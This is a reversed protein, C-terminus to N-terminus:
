ILGLALEDELLQHQDEPTLSSSSFTETLEDDSKLRYPTQIDMNSLLRSEEVEPPYETEIDIALIDAGITRIATQIEKIEETTFTNYYNYPRGKSYYPKDTLKNNLVSYSMHILGSTCLYKCKLPLEKLQEAIGYNSLDTRFYFDRLELGIDRMVTRLQEVRYDPLYYPKGNNVSHTRGKSIVIPKVNMRNAVVDLPIIDKLLTLAESVPMIQM